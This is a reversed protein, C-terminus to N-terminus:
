RIAMTTQRARELKREQKKEFYAQFIERAIPAAAAGGGGGHEVLVAIAIEPNVRPAYGIFWAHNRLHEPRRADVSEEIRGRAAIQATGTKGSVAVDPLRARGATGYQVARLMGEQLARWTDTRLGVKRSPPSVVSDAYSEPMVGAPLKRLFLHPRYLDGSTGITAALRAMQTTTVLVSGQGVAVSVTEGAYWPENRARKKWEPDPMLGDVEHPLDLGTRAGLGFQRAYRAITEIPLQAGLQYFYSNCSMALADKLNLSGHGGARHCHFTNGYLRVSGSCYKYTEPTVIEQELAAAAVVLKFTSGPAYRGQIPRNSLPHSPDDVLSLWEGRNFSGSFANPDYSPSSALVLVEGNRADLAVAAGGLDAFATEAIEQLEMDISLQVSEGWVPPVQELLRERRGISNVVVRQVGNRGMLMGNYVREIGSQGVYDNREAGTFFDQGLQEESIRGVHGIVHAGVAGAPYYRRPVFQIHAGPLELQRAEIRAVDELPIDEKVITPGMRAQALYAEDSEADEGLEVLERLSKLTRPHDGELMLNFSPRNEAIIRGNRDLILGRPSAESLTRVHNARALREYTPSRVVQLQWFRLVLVGFAIMIAARWWGLRSRLARLDEYINM